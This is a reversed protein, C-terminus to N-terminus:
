FFMNERKVYRLLSVEYGVLVIYSIILFVAIYKVNVRHNFLYFNKHMLLVFVALGNLIYKIALFFFKGYNLALQMFPNVEKAGHNLFHLTFLGDLLCLALVLFVFFISRKSYRDVYYNKRDKARRNKGRRGSLSYFGFPPTPRTRRDRKRLEFPSIENNKNM